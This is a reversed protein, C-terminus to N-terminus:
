LTARGTRYAAIAANARERVRSALDRPELCSVLPGAAVLWSELWAEDAYPVSATVTGDDGRQLDRTVGELLHEAGAAVHVRAIRHLTPEPLAPPEPTAEARPVPACARIRDLRFTRVAQATHCHAQLYEVGDRTVVALPRVTRESVEDRVPHRYELRLDHGDRLAAAITAAHPSTPVEVVVAEDPGGGLMDILRAVMADDVDPLQQLARLGLLLPAAEDATLRLPEVLGQADIVTVTERDFAIDVLDGGYLGPGTVTLLALDAELQAVTLGFHRAADEKSIGSHAALWPVLTLLRRLREPAGEAM